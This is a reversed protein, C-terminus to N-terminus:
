EESLREILAHKVEPDDLAREIADVTEHTETDALDSLQFEEKIAGNIQEQADQADPTYVCGCYPCSKWNGELPEGCRDCVPPTLPSDENPEVSVM